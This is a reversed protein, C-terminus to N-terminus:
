HMRFKEPFKDFKIDYLLVLHNVMLIHIKLHRDHWAKEHEKQVQQHFGALFQDEDLEVLQALREELAGRDAMRILAAIRLTPIIYEM